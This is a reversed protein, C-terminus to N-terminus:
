RPRAAVGWWGSDVVQDTVDFAQEQLALRFLDAEDAEMGAFVALGSRSPDENALAARISPLLETNATRLINSLVLDVPGLLPALLAADGEVFAVRDTVRNRDANRTAVPIADPDTEVGTAVRAGLLAAAITLIGSGSGLDLVRHGPELHRDLLVLATRTSGHEGSGFAMEPDIILVPGDPAADAAPHWSPTVLLRGIQRPALGDRWRVSWDVPPQPMTSVTCDSGFTAALNRQLSEVAEADAAWSMLGGDAREEVGAGTHQVLWPGVEGRRADPCHVEVVWGTM